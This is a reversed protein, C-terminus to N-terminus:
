TSVNGKHGFQGLVGAAPPSAQFTMGSANKVWFHPKLPRRAQLDTLGNRNFKLTYKLLDDKVRM